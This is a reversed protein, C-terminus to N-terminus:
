RPWHGPEAAPHLTLVLASATADGRNEILLHGRPHLLVGDGPRLDTEDIDSSMGDSGRHIWARGWTAVHADGDDLAILTPGTASTVSLQAHPALTVRGLELVTPGVGVESALGGAITRQTVDGPAPAQRAPQGALVEPVTLTVVLLRVSGAGTNRTTIAAGAPLLLSQGASLRPPLSAAPTRRSDDAVQLSGEELFLFRPGPAHAHWDEGSALSLRELSIVRPAPATLELSATALPQVLSLAGTDSWREVIAGGSVRLVDVPPWRAIADPITERLMPLPQAHQGRILAVARNETAIIPEAALRLGPATAHLALLYEELGERGTRTVPLSAHDLFHLAVIARLGSTDGTAIVTNVADYFRQIVATTAADTGGTPVPQSFFSGVIMAVAIAFLVPPLVSVIASRHM